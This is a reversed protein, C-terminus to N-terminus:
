LYVFLTAPKLFQTKLISVAQISIRREAKWLAVAVCEADIKLAQVWQVSCFCCSQFIARNLYSDNKRSLLFCKDTNRDM